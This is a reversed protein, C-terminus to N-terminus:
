QKAKLEQLLAKLEKIEDRLKQLEQVQAQLERVQQELQQLQDASVPEVITTPSSTFQAYTSSAEVKSAWQPQGQADRMAVADIENWGPVAPSDLYIKIKSTPFGIEVPIVSIGKPVDRPTPDDGEWIVVEQGQENFASVKHVAGPNYTEHIAIASPIQAVDYSCILWEPQSDVTESAWATVQDGGESDPEGQAQEPGWSRKGPAVVSIVVEPEAYTSSAEVKVAWNTGGEADTLGVADIENWGPVAMSAIYVKIKKVAFEIKVPIVSIGRPENRPTPDEGEWAVIEAGAADFVSVKNVVGPNYSEHILITKPVVAQAYECVLWEDQGDTTRSAWATAIDGAGPTNPEGTAQEPGWSRRGSATTPVFGPKRTFILPVPTPPADQSAPPLDTAAPSEVAPPVAATDIPAPQATAAGPDGNAALSPPALGAITAGILAGGVIVGFTLRSAQM